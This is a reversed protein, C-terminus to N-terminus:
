AVDAVVNAHFDVVFSVILRDGNRRASLMVLIIRSSSAQPPWKDYISQWGITRTTSTRSHQRERATGTAGTFGPCRSQFTFSGNTKDTDHRNAQSSRVSPPLVRMPLCTSPPSRTGHASIVRAPRRRARLARPRGLAFSQSTYPIVRVAIM